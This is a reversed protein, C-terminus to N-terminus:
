SWSRAPRGRVLRLLRIALECLGRPETMVLVVVAFGLLM